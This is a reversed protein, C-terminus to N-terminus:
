LPCTMVWRTCYFRLRYLESIFFIAQNMMQFSQKALNFGESFRSSLASCHM